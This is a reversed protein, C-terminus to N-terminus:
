RGLVAALHRLEEEIEEPCAVTQAIEERLLQAYRQKLRHVDSKVTGEAVGLQGAAEAYTLPREAGPLFRELLEFREEQGAQVYENRLRARVQQLLCLAWHREYLDAPNLGQASQEVYLRETAVTDLPLHAQGGGRKECRARDWENALFHGFASLLFSRFRGRRADAQSIWNKALLRAFFEQTVDQAQEITYGQRRAHAYLPPWYGCCLKELAVAAEPSEREGAALVVSWHTTAFEDSELSM